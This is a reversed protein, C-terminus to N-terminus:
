LRSFDIGTYKTGELDPAQGPSGRSELLYLAGIYTKYPKSDSKLKFVFYHATHFPLLKQGWFTYM